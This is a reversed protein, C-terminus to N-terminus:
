WDTKVVSISHLLQRLFGLPKCCFIKHMTRCTLQTTDPSGEAWGPRTGCHPNPEPWYCLTAGRAKVIRSVYAHKLGRNMNYRNFIRAHGLCHLHAPVHVIALFAVFWLASLMSVDDRRLSPDLRSWSRQNPCSSLCRAKPDLRRQEWFGRSHTGLLFTLGKSITMTILSLAQGPPPTPEIKGQRGPCSRRDELLRGWMKQTQSMKQIHYSSVELIYHDTHVRIQCLPSSKLSRGIDKALSAKM